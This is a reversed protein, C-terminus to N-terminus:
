AVCTILKRKLKPERLLRCSITTAIDEKVANNYLEWM